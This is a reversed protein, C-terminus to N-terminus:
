DFLFYKWSPHQTDFDVYWGQRTAAVDPPWALHWAAHSMIRHEDLPNYVVMERSGFDHLVFRPNEFILDYGAGNPAYLFRDIAVVNTQYDKNLSILTEPYFGHEARYAEIEEILQASTAIARERSASNAPVGLALQLVLTFLPIAVLLLPAHSFGRTENHRQTRLWQLGMYFLGGWLVFLAFGLVRAQALSWAGFALIGLLVFAVVIPLLAFWFRWLGITNGARTRNHKYLEYGLWPLAALAVPVGLIGVIQALM